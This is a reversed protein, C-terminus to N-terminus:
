RREWEELTGITKRMLIEDYGRVLYDRLVGVVEYGSKEYLRKAGENFSSVCLFVNPSVRHIREEAFTLLASGVGRGRMTEAVVITQLYGTFPGTMNLIIFGAIAGERRAIWRERSADGLARACADEGRRLTLWPDSAAMMRACAVIDAPDTLPDIALDRM